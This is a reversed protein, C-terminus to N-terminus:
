SGAAAPRGLLYGQGLHVGLRALTEKEAETEIGEAIIRCGTQRAFHVLGTVMAQRAPDADVGRVIDM